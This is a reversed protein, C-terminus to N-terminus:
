RVRTWRGPRAECAKLNLQPPAVGFINYWLVLSQWQDSKLRCEEVSMAGGREEADRCRGAAARAPLTVRVFAAM